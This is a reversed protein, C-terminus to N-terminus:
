GCLSFVVVRVFFVLDVVPTIVRVFHVLDVVPTIPHVPSNDPIDRTSANVGASFSARVLNLASYRSRAISAPPEDSIQPIGILSRRTSTMMTLNRRAFYHLTNMVLPLLSTRGSAYVWNTLVKFHLFSNLGLFAAVSFCSETYSLTPYTMPFSLFPRTM